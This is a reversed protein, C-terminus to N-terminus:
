LAFELDLAPEAWLKMWFNVVVCFAPTTIAWACLLEAFWALEVPEDAKCPLAWAAM